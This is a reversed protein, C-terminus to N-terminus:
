TPSSMSVAKKQASLISELENAATPLRLNRLLSEISKVSM